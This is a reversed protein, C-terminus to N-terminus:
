YSVQDVRIGKYYLYLSVGFGIVAFIVAIGVAVATAPRKLEERIADLMRYSQRKYGKGRSM